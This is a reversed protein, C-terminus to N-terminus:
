LPWQVRVVDPADFARLASEIEPPLLTDDSDLFCVVEGRSLSFGLNWSSAPGENQKLVARIRDGYGQLIQPSDDKSGDDVAIIECSTHTQTLASDICDALYRGYNYSTVIISVLPGGGASNASAM